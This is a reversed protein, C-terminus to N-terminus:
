HGLDTNLEVAENYTLCRMEKIKLLEAGLRNEVSLVIQDYSNSISKMCIEHDNYSQSYQLWGEPVTRTTLVLVTIFFLKV